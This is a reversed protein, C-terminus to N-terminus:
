NLNVLCAFVILLFIGSILGIIVWVWYNVWALIFLTGICVMFGIMVGIM